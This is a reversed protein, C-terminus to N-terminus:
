LWRTIMKPANAVNRFVVADDDTRGDTHGCPVDRSGSSPNEHFKINSYKKFYIDLFNFKILYLIVLDNPSSWYVYTIM